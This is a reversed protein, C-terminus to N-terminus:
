RNPKQHHHKHDEPPKTQPTAEPPKQQSKNTCISMFFVGMLHPSKRHPQQQAQERINLQDFIFGDDFWLFDNIETETPTKSHFIDELLFSLDEIKDHEKITNLTDLGGSWAEFNALNNYHKKIYM